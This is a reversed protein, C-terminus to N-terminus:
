SYHCFNAYFQLAFVGSTCAAMVCVVDVKTFWFNKKRNM